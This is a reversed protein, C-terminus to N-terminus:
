NTAAEIWAKDDSSYILGPRLSSPLRRIWRADRSGTRAWSDCNNPGIDTRGKGQRVADYWSIVDERKFNTPYADVAAPDGLKLLTVYMSSNIIVAGDAWESKASEMLGKRLIARADDNAEGIRCIALVAPVRDQGRWKSLEGEYFRLTRPGADAMRLYLFRFYDWGRDSGLADLMRSVEQDPMSAYSERPLEVLSRELLKFWQNRMIIKANALEIFRNAIADRLPILQEPKEFIAGPMGSPPATKGKYVIDIFVGKGTTEVGTDHVFEVFQSFLDANHERKYDAQEQPYHGVRDILTSWRGDGQFNAYDTLAYKRLGLVISEPSDRVTKDVGKPTGDIVEHTKPEFDAICVRQGSNPKPGCGIVFITPLAPLRWVSATRYTAFVQGDLSFDIFQDIIARKREWVADDGRRTVVIQQLPPSEPFSLGCVGPVYRDNLPGGGFDVSRVLGFALAPSVGQARLSAQAGRARACQAQDLLGHAIYGFNPNLHYTAPVDYHTALHTARYEAQGSPMVLSHVAPDFQLVLSPNSMQLQAAKAAIERGQEVYMVYYGGYAGLPIIMVFRPLRGLAGEVLLGLLFVQVAFGCLIAGGLFMMVNGIGPSAQLALLAIVAVLAWFSFSKTMRLM